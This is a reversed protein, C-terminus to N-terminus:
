RCDGWTEGFETEVLVPVKLALATEMLRKLEGVAEEAIATRPVSDNLEDHVPILYAGLADFVGAEYGDVMAKKMLDAAGGQLAGNLARYTGARELYAGYQERAKELPLPTDYKGERGRRVWREFRRRRGMITKVYGRSSAIRSAEEFTAAAFPLARDYEALFREAEELTCGFTTALKPPRAGYLRAFNTNKVRKRRVKDEPDAGLMEATMKHFDTTPTSRYLERAAEAGSGVAHHVLLRYEIQSFDGRWWREGEEPIFISRILPGLLPDRSPIFQLNPNQSSFRAITGSGDGKLQPFESYIRGDIHNGLIQGDIFTNILTNLQRGSAITDILEDGAYQELVEKRISYQGSKPTTPVAINRQALASGLVDALMWDARPGALRKLRVLLEQRRFILDTRVKNARDLDVRVGRVRMRLLVPLLRCELDFLQTLGEAELRPEQLELIRLPRDADGEGYPGVLHGPLQWLNEKVKKGFGWSIAAENLLGEQKGEGLYDHSLADLNYEFRNEDLLPEALQVDRFRKVNPFTIGEFWLFELDYILKAGVVEGTFRNLEERAWALVVKADLNGGEAHRIPFYFRRGDDLGLALGVIYAGRRTGPGLDALTPDYTEVDVSIRKCHQISPLETPPRWATDPQFLPLQRPKM